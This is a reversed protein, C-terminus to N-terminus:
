KCEAKWGPWAHRRFKVYAPSLEKLQQQATQMQEGAQHLYNLDVVGSPNARERAIDAAALERIKDAECMPSVVAAFFDAEAKKAARAAVCKADGRCAREAAVFGGIEAIAKAMVTEDQEPTKGTLDANLEYLRALAARIADPTVAALEADSLGEVGEGADKYGKPQWAQIRALLGRLEEREATMRARCATFV